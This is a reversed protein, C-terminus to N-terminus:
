RTPEKAAFERAIREQAADARLNWAATAEENDGCLETEPRVACTDTACEVWAETLCEGTLGDLQAAGGCFPCPLLAIM